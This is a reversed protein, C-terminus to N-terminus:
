DQKAAADWKVAVANAWVESRGWGLPVQGSDTIIVADANLPGAIDRLANHMEATSDADYGHAAVVGLNQHKRDPRTVLVEVKSNTPSSASESPKTRDISATVCALVFFAIIVLFSRM